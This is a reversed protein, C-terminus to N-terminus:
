APTVVNSAQSAVLTSGHEPQNFRSTNYYSPVLDSNFSSLYKKIELAKHYTEEILTHPHLLVEHMINPRLSNVFRSITFTNAESISCQMTFEEFKEM